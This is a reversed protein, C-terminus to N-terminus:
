NKSGALRDVVVMSDKIKKFILQLSGGPGFPFSSQNLVMIYYGSDTKNFHIINLFNPYQDKSNLIAVLQQIDNKDVIKFVQGNVASPLQALPLSESTLLISDGLGVGQKLQSVSPMYQTTISEELAIKMIAVTDSDKTQSDAVKYRCSVMLLIYVCLYSKM